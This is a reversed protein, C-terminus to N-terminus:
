ESAWGIFLYQQDGRANPGIHGSRVSGGDCTKMHDIVVLPAGGNADGDTTDADEIWDEIWRAFTLPDVGAPVKAEVFEHKEAITGTYGGHGHVYRAARTRNRFADAMTSGTGVSSFTTAGM